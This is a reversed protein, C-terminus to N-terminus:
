CGFQFGHLCACTEAGDCMPKKAHCGVAVPVVRVWSLICGGCRLNRYYVSYIDCWEFVLFMHEGLFNQEANSLCNVSATIHDCIVLQESLYVLLRRHM